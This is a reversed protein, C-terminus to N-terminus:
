VVFISLKPGRIRWKRRWFWNKIVLPSEFHHFEQTGTTDRIRALIVCYCKVLITISPQWFLFENRATKKIVFSYSQASFISLRSFTQWYLDVISFLLSLLLLIKFRLVSKALLLNQRMGASNPSIFHTQYVLHSASEITRYKPSEKPTNNCITNTKCIQRSKNTM